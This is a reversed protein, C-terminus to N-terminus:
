TSDITIPHCGSGPSDLIELPFTLGCNNCKILDGEQTYYAKPSGNCSQCTGLAVKIEGDEGIRALLEIKSDGGLPIFAVKDQSLDTAQILINGQEDKKVSSDPIITPDNGTKPVAFVVIVAILAFALAIFPLINKRNKNTNSKKDYM